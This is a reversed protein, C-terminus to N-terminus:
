FDCECYNVLFANGYGAKESERCLDGQVSIGLSGRSLGGGVRSLFGGSLFGEFFCPGLSLSGRSPVHSWAALCSTVDYLSRGGGHVSHSVCVQLFM